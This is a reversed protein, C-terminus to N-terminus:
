VLDAFGRIASAIKAGDGDDKMGAAVKQYIQIV